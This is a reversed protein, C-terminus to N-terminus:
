PDIAEAARMRARDHEDGGRIPTVDTVVTVDHAARAEDIDTTVRTVRNEPHSLYRTWADHFDGRDYGKAVHEGIRQPASRIEYSRLMRGLRRADMPRGRLDGWPAEDLGNLALLLTETHMKEAVGFVQRVDGLLRVGLSAEQEVNAASLATCANRIRESWEGNAADGIAVLPEWVDAPRDTIGTPMTVRSEDLTKWHQACWADLRDRIAHGIPEVNRIRFPEIREDPRRRKMSIIISRQMVTDPLDGIGALAVACFASFEKVDLKGGEGVCRVAMAGRRHGANVLGRVDEHEKSVRPGLYTDCEDMLLTPQRKEVVRFMAAASTNVMHMPNPVLLDLVEQARTKGSGKEPSLFALRPTSDFAGLRVLHAHIVWGAVAAAAEPSPFAVHRVLLEHVDDLHGALADWDSPAHDDWGRDGNARRRAEERAEDLLSM